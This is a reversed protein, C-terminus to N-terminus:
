LKGLDVRVNMACVHVARAVSECYQRLHDRATFGRHVFGGVATPRHRRHDGRGVPQHRGALRCGRSVPARVAALDRDDGCAGRGAIRRSRAACDGPSNPDVSREPGLRGGAAVGRDCQAESKGSAAPFRSADRRHNHVASQRAPDEGSRRPIAGLAGRSSDDSLIVVNNNGPWDDQATFDRGLAPRVGLLSFYNASVHEAILREPVGDILAAPVWLSGAAM